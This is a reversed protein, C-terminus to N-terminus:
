SRCAQFLCVLRATTLERQCIAVIGQQRVARLILNGHDVQVAAVSHGHEGFREISSAYRTATDGIGGRQLLLVLDSPPNTSTLEQSGAIVDVDLLNLDRILDALKDPIRDSDLVIRLRLSAPDISAALSGTRVVSPGIAHVMKLIEEPRVKKPALVLSAPQGVATLDEITSDNSNLVLTSQHFRPQRCLERLLDIGRGDPLEMATMLLDPPEQSATQRVADLSAVVQVAQPCIQEFVKRLMLGQLKSPEVIMVTKLPRDAIEHPPTSHAVGGMAGHLLVELDAALQSCTQYRDAPHKAMAKAVIRDCEVPTTPEFDSPIPPPKTMHATMVQVISRCDHYPFRATLLRFLTAGLSYIDTRADIEEAEFQEPSMYQPTGLIQGAKTVASHPHNSADLLKSLGFDVVKVLGDKTLMLNEPKIDRHIMGSEHAAALGNAAQAVMRCAEDWPLRASDSVRDAISGGALLEMVLYYQGKWQDIDYISVVNPHNLRGIARAEGLFRQLATPSSSLDPSLVKIAVEREILPDFALYVAGMGGSGLQARIEYKGITQGIVVTPGASDSERGLGVVTKTDLDLETPESGAGIFTDASPSLPPDEADPPESRSHSDTPTVIIETLNCFVTVSRIPHPDIGGLYPM